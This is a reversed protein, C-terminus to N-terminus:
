RARYFGTFYIITFFFALVIRSGCTFAHFHLALPRVIRVLLRWLVGLFLTPLGPSSAHWSLRGCLISLGMIAGM